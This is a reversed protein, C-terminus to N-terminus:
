SRIVIKVTKVDKIKRSQNLFTCNRGVIVMNMSKGHGNDLEINFSCIPCVYGTNDIILLSKLFSYLSSAGCGNMFDSALMFVHLDVTIKTRVLFVSVLM